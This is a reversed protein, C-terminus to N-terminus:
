AFLLRLYIIKFAFIIELKMLLSCSSSVLFSPVSNANAFSYRFSSTSATIHLKYHFSHDKFISCLYYPLIPLESLDRFLYKLYLLYSCSL